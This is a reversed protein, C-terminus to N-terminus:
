DRRQANATTSSKMQTNKKRYGINAITTMTTTNAHSNLAHPTHRHAFIGNLPPSGICHARLMAKQMHLFWFWSRLPSLFHSFSLYLHPVHLIKFVYNIIWQIRVREDDSPDCSASERCCRRPGDARIRVFDFCQFFINSFVCCSLLLLVFLAFFIYRVLACCIAIWSWVSRFKRAVSHTDIQISPQTTTMTTSSVSCSLLTSSMVIGFHIRCSFSIFNMATPLITRSTTTTTTAAAVVIIANTTSTTM